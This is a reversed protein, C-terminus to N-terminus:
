TAVRNTGREVDVSRLLWWGAVFFVALAGVAPRSSDFLWVSAVFVLPSLFSAFKSLISFFGFYEGSREAPILKAYLSRSLAQSGGQCVAVMWALCWFEAMSDLAFGWLAIVTYAVLALMIAAKADLRHPLLRAPLLRAAVVALLGAAAQLGLIAGLIVLLNSARDPPLVEISSVDIVGKGTEGNVPLLRLRHPGAQDIPVELDDDTRDVDRRAELVLPEDDVIITKGDVEVILDAHDPGADFTLLLDAGTWEFGSAPLQDILVEGQDAFDALAVGSVTAPAFLRLGIGVLPLGVISLVVFAIVSRARNGTMSGFALSFPIGVFQVLLVALVLDTAGFRLETGYIAAVSIVVNIADNYIIFAVLFRALDPLTRLERLTRKLEALGSRGGVGAPEPVHRVLPISFLAWWIGVSALSLRVGLNDDPLAFILAINAALLLGGGLYGLAYGWASVRDVEDDSAVHPLLSDYFVISGGFGIRALGFIISAALWDGDGVTYLGTTAAMGLVGFALLWRKRTGHADASAGLAPSLVAVVLVSLSLTLTYYQTATARSALNSGAVASYYVPFVAALVTTAFASNAWDYLLWARVTRNM